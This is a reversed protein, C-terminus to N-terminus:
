HYVCVTATPTLQLHRCLPLPWSCIMTNPALIPELDQLQSCVCGLEPPGSLQHQHDSNRTMTVYCHLSTNPTLNLAHLHVALPGLQQDWHHFDVVTFLAANGQMLLPTLGPQRCVRRHSRLTCNGRLHTCKLPFWNQSAPKPYAVPYSPSALQLPAWHYQGTVPSVTLILGILLQSLRPMKYNCLQRSQSSM